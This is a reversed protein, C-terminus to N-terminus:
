IADRRKQASRQGKSWNWAHRQGRNRWGLLRSLHGAHRSLKAPTAGARYALRRLSQSEGLFDPRLLWALALLRLGITRPFVRGRPKPIVLQMLRVVIEEFRKVAEAEPAEGDLARYLEAWDFDQGIADLPDRSKARRAEDFPQKV